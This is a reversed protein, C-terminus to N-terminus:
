YDENNIWWNKFEEFSIKGDENKDLIFVATELENKKLTTGLSACLGSIEAPSLSGTGDKDAETFKQRMLGEDHGLARLQELSKLAQQSGYYIYVGVAATYLGILPTIVGGISIMILGVGFYFGARGYPRYLFLAEKRIKERVNAPIFSDKFELAAMLAGACFFYMYCLSLVPAFGFVASLFGMFSIFMILIGAAFGLYKWSGDGEEVSKKLQVLKESAFEMAEGSHANIYSTAANAAFGGMAKASELDDSGGVQQYAM